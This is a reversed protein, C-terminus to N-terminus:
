GGVRTPFARNNRTGDGLQGSQNFGWCWLEGQDSRGCTIGGGALISTFRIDGAVPTPTSRAENTGDGLQGHVNQGWCFVEGSATRACTHSAGAVVSVVSPLGPVVGPRTAPLATGSGLQGHQNDGWCYVQGDRLGCSHASGATVDEFGGGAAVPVPALRDVRAGDGLQGDANLGWCHIQGSATLGCTHQWGSALRVFRLPSAVPVPVTRDDRGGTGLQGSLNRGWCHARGDGDLGCTHEVGAALRAFRPGEIPRGGHSTRSGDGLQGASNSGWCWGLGEEDLGCAHTVGAAVAVVGSVEASASTGGRCFPRGGAGVVCVMAGGVDWGRRAVRPTAGSPSESATAADTSDSAETEAPDVATARFVVRGGGGTVRAVVEQEGLQDGLTWRAVAWGDADTLDRDPRVTGSETAFEVEAGEVPAGDEDLVRILLAEPLATGPAASQDNGDVGGIEAGTAPVASVMFSTLIEPRDAVRAVIEVDQPTAPLAVPTYVVGDEDSVAVRALGSAEGAVVEFEVSVGPVPVGASDLVQLRLPEPLLRGVPGTQANGGRGALLRPEGPEAPPAPEADVVPVPVVSDAPDTASPGFGVGEIMRGLGLPQWAAAVLVVAAGALIWPRVSSSRRAPAPAAAARPPAGDRESPHRRRRVAPVTGRATATSGPGGEDLGHLLPDVEPEELAKLEELMEDASAWREDPAKRIAREVIAVVRESIDPRITRLDQPDEHKQKFIISYISDGEWPHRGALMEYAVLGLSFVDSRGDVDGGDIQEPAMYAPTGLSEGPLTLRTDLDWPRAVGFDALRATGVEDDIYINEPKVDRHVIKRRHAYALASAVDHLLSVARRPPLPGTDQLLEKLNRGPVHEMLLVMSGDPLHQTGYLKVINPHQLRAVLKAERDLRAMAEEDAGFSSRIVKVALDRNLEHDRILYVIATAGRGLERVLEFGPGLAELTARVSDLGDFERPDPGSM